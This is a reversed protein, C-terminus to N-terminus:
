CFNELEKLFLKDEDTSRGRTTLYGGTLMGNVGSLMLLAQFDKMRTERGAAFKITKDPLILRFLSFIKAAEDVPVLPQNELPTGPIPILINLPVVDVNLEKLAYAMEIRDEMSEGVGFIGGTCAKIGYKKLLRVTDMRMEVTHSDAILTQYREPNVQLNINYHVIKHEALARATDESLIGLSACVKMDPFERYITDVAELISEFEGDRKTYGWGSTVIGFSRVGNEYVKKADKLITEVSVLPYTELETQYHVSQACYKCNESCKGSKANMISCVHPTKSYKNKVKNALSVLDLIDEGKLELLEMALKKDLEKGNLVSYAKEILPNLMKSEKKLNM